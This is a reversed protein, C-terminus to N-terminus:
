EKPLELSLIKTEGEEMTCGYLKDAARLTIDNHSIIVFQCDKSMEKLWRAVKLTNEKDLPADIEDLLYFDSPKYRQIAFLFALATLAKEGGSLSDIEVNKGPLAVQILLGSDLNNTDELTLAGKGGMMENCVRNFEESIKELTSFFVEKRKNEIEEITKLVAKKEELIKEYKEKIADFERKLIEYEEIAKLNVTGINKLENEVKKLKEEIVSIKEDVTEVNVFKEAEKRSNELETEIKAKEIALRNVEMELNIRRDQLKRREERLKEVERESSIKLKELNIMEKSEESIAIEKLKKELEEEEKKLDEIEKLLQLKLDRYKEIDEKEERLKREALFGGTIAGSREILDGDLTVMRVKGIGIEKATQLNEIILTNGFVFEIAPEFKRDYSILKSAVGIVGRKELLDKEKFEQPKIKNLPLFTARGIKERKLFNICNIAIDENEVVIDYLHQSAAIEIAVRYEEPISILNAISGYVGKLKLNLIERTARSMERTFEAKKVELAELKEILNQIREAERKNIDIKEKILLLRSRIKSAEEEIRIRKSLEVIKEIIQKINREADELKKEREAIESDIKEIKTKIQNINQIIKSLKEELMEVKKKWYSAQLMLLQKQLEQYKLAANREEELKKFIEYKQTVIIEVERLKQDVIELDKMAKEKKENYEKIGCIEDIIERREVPNMEIVRTVDGQQIINYGDPRIGALSLVELIKERTVTKGNLKYVVYGKRNVKRTISIEKEEFPFVRKSNDFYITVSAYEAPKKTETGRFILESLRDARMSKASIRGLVFSIADIINSKGSGNPGTIVTLGPTFPISIKKNFSKFGQLTLRTIFTKM